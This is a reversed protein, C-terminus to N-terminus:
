GGHESDVALQDPRRLGLQLTDRDVHAREVEDRNVILAKREEVVEASGGPSTDILAPSPRALGSRGPFRRSQNISAPSEARRPRASPEIGSSGTMTDPPVADPVRAVTGPPDYHSEAIM